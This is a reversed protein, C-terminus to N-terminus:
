SRAHMAGNFRRHGSQGRTVYDVKLPQAFIALKYNEYAM